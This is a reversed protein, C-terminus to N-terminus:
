VNVLGVTSVATQVAAVNREFGLKKKGGFGVSLAAPIDNWPGTYGAVPIKVYNATGTIEYGDPVDRSLNFLEEPPTLQVEYLVVRNYPSTCPQTGTPHYRRDAEIWWYPFAGSQQFETGTNVTSEVFVRGDSISSLVERSINGLSLTIDASKPVKTQPRFYFINNCGDKLTVEDISDYNVKVVLNNVGGENNGYQYAWGTKATSPTPRGSYIDTTTSAGTYVPLAFTIPFHVCSDELVARLNCLGEFVNFGLDAM